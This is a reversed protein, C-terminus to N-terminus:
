TTGDYGNDGINTFFGDKVAATICKFEDNNHIPTEIPMGIEKIDVKFAANAVPTGSNDVEAWNLTM